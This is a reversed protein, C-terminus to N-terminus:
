IFINQMALHSVYFICQRTVLCFNVKRKTCITRKGQHSFAYCRNLINYIKFM